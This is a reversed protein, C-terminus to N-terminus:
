LLCKRWRRACVCLTVCFHSKMRAFENVNCTSRRVAQKGGAVGSHPTPLQSHRAIRVCQAKRKFCNGVSRFSILFINHPLLPMNLPACLASLTCFCRCCQRGCPLWVFRVCQLWHVCHAILRGIHAAPSRQIGEFIIINNIAAMLGMAGHHCIRVYAARIDLVTPQMKHSNPPSSTNHLTKKPPPPSGCTPCSGIFLWHVASPGAGDAQLPLNHAHCSSLSSARAM